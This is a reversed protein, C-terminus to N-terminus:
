APEQEDLHYVKRTLEVANRVELKRFLNRRHDEVTRRSIHGLLDAIERNTLGETLLKCIQQERATLASM